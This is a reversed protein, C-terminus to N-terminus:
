TDALGLLGLRLAPPREAILAAFILLNFGVPRDDTDDTSWTPHVINAAARLAPGDFDAAVAPTLGATRTPRV